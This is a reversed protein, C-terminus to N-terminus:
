PERRLQADDLTIIGVGNRYTIKTHFPESLRQLDGIIKRGLSEDALMPRGRVAAPQGFGLTIPYLEVEQLVRNRWRPVAVVSEWIERQAPFGKRDNDYRTENFDAMGKSAGVGLAAFDDMPLRDVTANEFVFDGLSYFIPKGKYIEIARLVHPGHGVFVDAGADIMAHAFTVLFDAPVFASQAGEHAHISVVTLDSLRRGNSVASAIQEVDAADPATHVGAKDGRVFATDFLTIRDGPPVAVGLESALTRLATLGADTVVATTSFHLPSL